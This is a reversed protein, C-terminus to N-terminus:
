SLINEEPVQEDEMPAAPTEPQTYVPAEPQVAPTKPINGAQYDKAYATYGGALLLQTIADSLGCYVFGAGIVRFLLDKAFTKSFVFMILLGLIISVASLGAFWAAKNYRIRFACVASQLKSFGSSVIILGLAIPILGIIMDRNVMIVIGALLAMIGRVFEDRFLSDEIKLLFYQTLSIVGFICAGVGILYCIIDSSVAPYLILLVGAAIECVSLVINLWKVNKLM